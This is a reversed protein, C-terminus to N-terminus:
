FGFVRVKVTEEKAGGGGGVQLIYTGQGRAHDVRFDGQFRDGNLYTTTGPGEKIGMVYTGHYISGDATSLQTGKGHRMNDQWEGEYQDGSSSVFTGQGTLICRM